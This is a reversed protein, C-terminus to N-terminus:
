TSQAGPVTTKSVGVRVRIGLCTSRWSCCIRDGDGVVVRSGLIRFGAVPLPWMKLVKTLSLRHRVITTNGKSAPGGGVGEICAANNLGAKM